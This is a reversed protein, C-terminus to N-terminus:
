VFAITIKVLKGKKVETKRNYILSSYLTETTKNKIAKNRWKQSNLKGGGGNENNHVTGRLISGYGFRLM